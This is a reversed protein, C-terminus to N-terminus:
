ILNLELPSAGIELVLQAFTPHSLRPLRDERVNLCFILPGAKVRKGDAM